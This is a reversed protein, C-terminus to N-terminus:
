DTKFEKEYIGFCQRRTSKDEASCVINSSLCKADLPCTNNAGCNCTRKNTDNKGLLNNNHKKVVKEMNDMCSYSVKTNNKNFIKHYRHKSFHKKVLKLFKTAINMEVNNTFPPNFWIISRSRNRRSQNIKTNISKRTHHQM